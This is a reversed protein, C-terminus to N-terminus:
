RLGESRESRLLVHEDDARAGCARRRGASLPGDRCRIGHNQGPRITFRYSAAASKSDLLAHVVMSSANLAPKELWFAKFVPFKKARQERRYRDCGGRPCAMPRDKRLPGSTAQALSYAFNTTIIPNTSRPISVSAGSGSTRMRGNGSGKASRFTLAGIRCRRSAGTRWRLFTSGTRTSSAATSSSCRSRCSKTVGCRRKPPSGFPDTNTTISIRGTGDPLKEDPAVFPKTALARAQERVSSPGFPAAASTQADAARPLIAAASVAASARLLDRRNM